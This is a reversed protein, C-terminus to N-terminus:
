RCSWSVRGGWGGVSAKNMCGFGVRSIAGRKRASLPPLFRLAGPRKLVGLPVTVVAADARFCRGDTQM